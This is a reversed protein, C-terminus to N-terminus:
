LDVLFLLLLLPLMRCNSLLCIRNPVQQCTPSKKGPKPCSVVIRKEREVADKWVNVNADLIELTEDLGKKANIQKGYEKKIKMLEEYKKQVLQQQIFRERVFKAKEKKAHLLCKENPTLAGSGAKNKSPSSKEKKAHPSGKGNRSSGDSGAKDKKSDKGKKDYPNNPWKKANKDCISAVAM